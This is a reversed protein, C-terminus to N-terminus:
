EQLVIPMKAGIFVQTPTTAIGVVLSFGVTPAAQTLLGNIGCFVPLDPVWAWSPETLLGMFQIQVPQGADAAGRTIGLVVNADVLATNSAYVAVGGQLRVARHGGLATGATFEVYPTGPEGAPGAPGPPGQVAAELLVVPSEAEVMLLDPEAADVVLEQVLADEVTEPESDTEVELLEPQLEILTEQEIVELLEVDCTM